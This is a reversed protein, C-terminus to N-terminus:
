ETGRAEGGMTKLAELLLVRDEASVDRKVDDNEGIGFADLMLAIFQTTARNDGKAARQVLSRLVFEIVQMDKDGTPLRATVTESAIKKLLSRITKERKPRGKANGSQGKKFQSSKPPKGYGVDSPVDPTLKSGWTM